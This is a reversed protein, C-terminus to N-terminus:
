QVSVHQAPSTAGCLSLDCWVPQRSETMDDATARSVGLKFQHAGEEEERERKERERKERAITAAEGNTTAVRSWRAAIRQKGQSSFSLYCIMIINTGFGILLINGVTRDGIRWPRIMSM